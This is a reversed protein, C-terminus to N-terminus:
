ALRRQGPRAPCPWRPSRTQPGPTRSKRNRYTGSSWAGPACAPCQGCANPTEFHTFRDLLRGAGFADDLHLAHVLPVALEMHELVDVQVHALALADDQAPWGARALRGGDAAEVAQLFVLLAADHDIAHFQGIVELLDFRDAPLHAHDELVEVQERVQANQFVAGQCRHPHALHWPALGLFDGHVVKLPYANRLLRVLEWPLERTALLLTHRNGPRQAHLRLDHQEVLRGRRQVRFHDLFHEVGHDAQGLVAHGHETHSM